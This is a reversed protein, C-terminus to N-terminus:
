KYVNKYEKYEITKTSRKSRKQTITHSTYMTLYINLLLLSTSVLTTFWLM